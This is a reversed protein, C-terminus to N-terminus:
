LLSEHNLDLSENKNFVANDYGRGPNSSYAHGRTLGAEVDAAPTEGVGAEGSLQSRKRQRKYELVDQRLSALSDDVASERGEGRGEWQEEGEDDDSLTCNAVYEQRCGMQRRRRDRRRRRMRREGGTDGGAEDGRLDGYRERAAEGAGERELADDDDYDVEDEDDEDDDFDEELDCRGM